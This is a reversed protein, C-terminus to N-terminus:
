NAGAGAPNIELSEILADLSTLDPSFSSEPQAELQNVTATRYAIYDGEVPDKEDAPLISNSVPLIVSVYYAGDRTLGQYTYFLEHNNIPMPGQDYQTLYRVGSGNKFDVNKVSAHFGQAANFLPLFPMRGGASLTQSELYKQLADIEDGAPAALDRFDGTPYVELRPEHFTKPLIYGGFKIQTFQPNADWYPGDSAHAKSPVVTTEVSQALAPAYAFRVGNFNVTKAAPQAPVPQTPAPQSALTAVPTSESAASSGQVNVAPASCGALFLGSVVLTPIFTSFLKM